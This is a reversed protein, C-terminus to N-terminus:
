ISRKKASVLIKPSISYYRGLRLTQEVLATVDVLASDSHRTFPVWNYGRVAQIDFGHDITARLIERCSLNASPLELTRASLIKLPWKYSHRNLADFILLGGNCVVRNSEQLFQHHDFYEFCQIAVLSDFTGDAFPLCLVDGMVLPIGNSRRQFAGVAVPDKELAVVNLGANHLPLAM